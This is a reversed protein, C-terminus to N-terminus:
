GRVAQLVKDVDERRDETRLPALDQFDGRLAKLAFREEDIEKRTRFGLRRLLLYPPSTGQLGHQLLFGGALLPLLLWVRSRAAGLLLGLVSMAGGKVMLAREIDWEADLQELRREIAKAGGAAHFAVNGETKRRIREEIMELSVADEGEGGKRERSGPKGASASTRSQVTM